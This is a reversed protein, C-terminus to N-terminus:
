RGLRLGSVMKQIPFIHEMLVFMTCKLGHIQNEWAELAVVIGAM